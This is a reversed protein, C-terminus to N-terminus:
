PNLFPLTKRPRPGPLPARQDLSPSPLARAHTHTHTLAGGTDPTPPHFHVWSPAKEARCYNSDSGLFGSKWWALLQLQLRLAEGRTGQRLPARPSQIERLTGGEM